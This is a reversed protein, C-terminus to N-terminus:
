LHSGDGGNLSSTEPVHTYYLIAYTLHRLVFYPNCYLPYIGIENLKNVRIDADIHNPWSLPYKIHDYHWKAILAAMSIHWHPTM